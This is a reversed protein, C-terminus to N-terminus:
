YRRGRKRELVVDFGFMLSFLHKGRTTSQPTVGDFMTPGTPVPLRVYNDRVELRLQYGKGIAGTFGVGLGLYPHIEDPSDDAFVIVDAPEGTGSTSTTSGTMKLFSQQTITIGVNVRGYPSLAKHGGTRYILGLSLAVSTASREQGDISNCTDSTIQAGTTFGIVCRDETGLGLLLAEGNFGIHDGPFYTGSFLAGLGSRLDRTLNLTDAFSNGTRLPQGKVEWLDGGGVFGFGVTLFLQAQDASQAALPPGITLGLLLALLPRLRM